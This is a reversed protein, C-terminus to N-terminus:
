PNKVEPPRSAPAQGALPSPNSALPSSAPSGTAARHFQHSEWLGILGILLGAMDETNVLNSSAMLGRAALVGGVVKLASRILSNIQDQNM